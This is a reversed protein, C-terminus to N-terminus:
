EMLLCELAKPNIKGWLFSLALLEQVLNKM